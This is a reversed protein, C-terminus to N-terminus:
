QDIKMKPLFTCVQVVVAFTVLLYLGPKVEPCEPRCMSFIIFNKIAWGLNFFAVFLNTRKAWVKEVLFFVIMIACFFTHPKWQTGFTGDANVRGHLGSLTLNLNPLYIWPM